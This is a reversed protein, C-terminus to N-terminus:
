STPQFLLSFDETKDVRQDTPHRDTNEAVRQRFPLFAVACVCTSMSISMRERESERQEDRRVHIQSPCLSSTTPWIRAIVQRRLVVLSLFLCAVIVLFPFVQYLVLVRFIEYGDNTLLFRSFAFKVVTLSLSLPLHNVM